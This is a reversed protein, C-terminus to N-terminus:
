GLPIDEKELKHIVFDEEHIMYVGLDIEDMSIFPDKPTNQTAWEDLNVDLIGQVHTNPDQIPPLEEHDRITLDENIPSPTYPELHCTAQSESKITVKTRYWTRM